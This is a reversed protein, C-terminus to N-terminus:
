RIPTPKNRTRDGRPRRGTHDLTVEAIRAGKPEFRITMSCLLPSSTETLDRRTRKEDVVHHLVIQDPASTKVSGQRVRMFVSHTSGRSRAVMSAIWAVASMTLAQSPHIETVRASTSLLSRLVVVDPTEGEFYSLADFFRDLVDTAVLCRDSPPKRGMGRDIVHVESVPPPPVHM